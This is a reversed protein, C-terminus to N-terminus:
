GVMLEDGARIMVARACVTQLTRILEHLDIPKILYADAGERRADAETFSTSYATMAIVSLAPHLKKAQRLLTISQPKPLQIDMILAQPKERKLAEFGQAISAFGAVTFGLRRLTTKFANVVGADSDIVVVSAPM